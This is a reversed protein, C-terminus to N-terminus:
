NRRTKEVYRSVFAIETGLHERVARLIRDISSSQFPEASIGAVAAPIMSSQVPMHM